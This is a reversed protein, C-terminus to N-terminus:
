TLAIEAGGSFISDHLEMRTLLTKKPVDFVLKGTVREGPEIKNLFTKTDRNAVLGAVDDNGYETGAADFAKQFRGLFFQPRDGINTVSMSVVCFRGDATDGLHELGVHSTTCDVRSVVFEFKGDRVAQGLGPAPSVTPQAAAQKPGLAEKAKGTVAAADRHGYTEAAAGFLFLGVIAAIALVGAIIPGALSTPRTPRVPRPPRYGSPRRTQYQDHSM